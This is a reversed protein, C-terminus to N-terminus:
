RYKQPTIQKCQEGDNSILYVKSDSIFSNCVDKSVKKEEKDQNEHLTDTNKSSRNDNLEEKNLETNNKKNNAIVQNDSQNQKANNTNVAGCGGLTFTIIIIFVYRVLKKM